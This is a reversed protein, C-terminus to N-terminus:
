PRDGQFTQAVAAAYLRCHSISVLIKMDPFLSQIKSSLRAEPKGHPDSLIEVDHWHTEKQLTEGLAKFIAEKAAFRGAYHPYPDSFKHCYEDERPTFHKEVFRPEHKLAIEKIREIEIIDIGLGLIIM